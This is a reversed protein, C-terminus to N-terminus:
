RSPISLSRGDGRPESTLMIDPEPMSDPPIALSFEIVPRLPSGLALLADRLADYLEMKVMGHPRHQANMFLIEGEILETKAYAGFAGGADLLMLDEIRLRIPMPTTNLPLQETM